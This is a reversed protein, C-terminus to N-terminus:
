FKWSVSGSLNRPTGVNILDRSDAAAYYTKDLANALTLGYSWNGRAYSLTVDVLTREPMYASPQNPILNTPTSADTYGATDGAARKGQYNAGVAVAFGRLAGRGVEYRVFVAGSEEASSNLMIGDPNRNKTDAWSAIISLNDTISGAVQFEWGSGKRTSIIPPLPAPPQPTAFNGPHHLAYGTQEIEYYAVSAIVRGDFFNTKVGFEDQTGESFLPAQGINALRYEGGGVPVANQTHGYYLSVNRDRLPKLVVGYNYTAKSGSGSFSQGALSANPPPYAPEFRNQFMGNFTLHAVGGSLMLRKNFLELQETLYVQYRSINHRVDRNPVTSVVAPGSPRTEKTIDIDPSTRFYGQGTNAFYSYSFGLLTSSTVRDGNVIYSWDNQLDRHRETYDGRTGTIGIIPSVPAAPQAVFNPPSGAPATNVWDVGGEWEGTFPNRSGGPTNLRIRLDSDPTYMEVVRGALRVSLKDTVTSTFLFDGTHATTRRFEYDKGFTPNFNHPVGELVKFPDGTGVSPDTPIGVINAAKFYYYEYRVTLNSQPAIRWTLSPTLLTSERFTGDIYGENDQVAAVVRYAFRESLPGTVDAEVRNADYEGVQLKLSGGATWQPKKTVLNITGGPAGTPLLVADPGKVVEVREIAGHDYNAQGGTRFGDVIRGDTQFGRIIVRDLANPITAESVGAVYKAAELVRTGGVDDLFDTTLVTVTTPTDMISTTIRGGAASESAQYRAPASSSVEFVSLTVVEADAAAARATAAAPASQAGVQQALVASGTALAAAM